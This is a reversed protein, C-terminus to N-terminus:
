VFSGYNTCTSGTEHLLTFLSRLYYLSRNPNQSQFNPKNIFHLHLYAHLSSLLHVGELKLRLFKSTFNNMRFVNQNAGYALNIAVLSM